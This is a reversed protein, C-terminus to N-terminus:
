APIAIRRTGTRRTMKKVMPHQRQMTTLELHAVAASRPRRAPDKEIFKMIWNCLYAPLEERNERLDRPKEEIQMRLIQQPDSSEFCPKGALCQYFSMGLAYLDSSPSPASGTLLEPAVYEPTILLDEPSPPQISEGEGPNLLTATGFDLIKLILAGSEGQTIMMNEPKLDGHVLGAEHIAKTGVLMQIALEFFREITLTRRNLYHEFNMGAILETVFCLRGDDIGQEIFHLVNPHKLQRLAHEEWVGSKKATLELMSHPLLRKVAVLDGTKHNLCAWIESMGGVAILYVPTYKGHLDSYPRFPKYVSHHVAM